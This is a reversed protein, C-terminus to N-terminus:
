YISDVNGRYLTIIGGSPGSYGCILDPVGDEDYDASALSLPHAQNQDLVQVLEVPGTYATLVDHGDSLNIWPNGRGAAHVTINESLVARDLKEQKLAARGVFARARLLVVSGILVFSLALVWTLLLARVEVTRWQPLVEVALHEGLDLTPKM